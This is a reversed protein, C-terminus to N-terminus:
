ALRILVKQRLGGKYMKCAINTYHRMELVSKLLMETLTYRHKRPLNDVLRYIRTEFNYIDENVPLGRTDAM